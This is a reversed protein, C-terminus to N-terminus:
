KKQKLAEEIQQATVCLGSNVCAVIYNTTQRMMVFENWIQTTRYGLFIMITFLAAGLFGQLWPKLRQFAKIM